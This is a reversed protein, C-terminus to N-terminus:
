LNSAPLDVQYLDAYVMSVLTKAIANDRQRYFSKDNLNTYIFGPAPDPIFFEGATRDSIGIEWITPGSRPPIYALDGLGMNSGSKIEINKEYKYDGKYGLSGHMFMTFEPDYINSISFSGDENTTTWFQYGKSDTQQSGVEGPPAYDLILQNQAIENIYRDNVMLRGTVTGRQNARLLDRSLQFDYPWKKTEEVMQRKPM